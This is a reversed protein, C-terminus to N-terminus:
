VYGFVKGVHGARVVSVNFHSQTQDVPSNLEIGVIVLLSEYARDVWLGVLETLMITALWRDDSVCRLNHPDAGHRLVDVACFATLFHGSLSASNGTASMHPNPLFRMEVNCALGRSDSWAVDVVVGGAGAGTSATTHDTIIGVQDDVHTCVVSLVLVLAM